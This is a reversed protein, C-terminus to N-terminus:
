LNIELTINLYVNSPSSSASLLFSFYHQLTFILCCYLHVSLAPWCVRLKRKVQCQWSVPLMSSASSPPSSSYCDPSLFALAPWVRIVSLQRPEPCSHSVNALDPRIVLRQICDLKAPSRYPPQNHTVWWIAWRGGSDGQGYIWEHCARSRPLDGREAEGNQLM